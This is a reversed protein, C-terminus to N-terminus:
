EVIWMRRWEPLTLFQSNKMSHCRRWSWCCPLSNLKHMILVDSMGSIKWCCSLANLVFFSVSWIERSSYINKIFNWIQLINSRYKSCILYRGWSSMSHFHIFFNIRIYCPELNHVFILFVWVCNLLFSTNIGVYLQNLLYSNYEMSSHVSLASYVQTCSIV